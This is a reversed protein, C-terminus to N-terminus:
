EFEGPEDPDKGLRGAANVRQNEFRGFVLEELEEVTPVDAGAWIKTGEGDATHYAWISPVGDDLVGQDEALEMGDEDDISVQGIRVRDGHKYHFMRWVPEMELCTGCRPSMYELLWLNDDDLVKRQFDSLGVPEGSALAPAVLAALAAVVLALRAPLPMARRFLDRFVLPPATLIHSSDRPRRTTAIPM